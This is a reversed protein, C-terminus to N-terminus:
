IKKLFFIIVIYNCDKLELYDKILQIIMKAEIKEDKNLEIFSSIHKKPILLFHYKDIPGKSYAIYFNNFSKIIYKTDLKENHEYCFWCDAKKLINNNNNINNNKQNINNNM